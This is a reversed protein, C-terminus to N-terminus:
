LGVLTVMLPFMTMEETSKVKVVFELQLVGTGKVMGLETDMASEVMWKLGLTRAATEIEGVANRTVIVADDLPEVAGVPPTDILPWDNEDDLTVTVTALASDRLIAPRPVLEVM